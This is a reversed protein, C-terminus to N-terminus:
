FHGSRLEPPADNVGGRSGGSLSFFLCIHLVSKSVDKTDATVLNRNRLLQKELEEVQKLKQRTRYWVECPAGHCRTFDELSQYQPRWKPKM